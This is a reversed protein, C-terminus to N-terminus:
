KTITSEMPHSGRGANLTSSRSNGTAMSPRPPRSLSLYDSVEGQEKWELGHTGIHREESSRRAGIKANSDETIIKFFTNNERHLKKLDMYFVEVEEEDYNSTPAYAVFITLASISGCRKLRLRGIRTALQESLDINM